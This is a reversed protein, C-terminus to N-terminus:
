SSANHVAQTSHARNRRQTVGGGWDQGVGAVAVVGVFVVVGELRQPMGVCYVSGNESRDGVVSSCTSVTLKRSCNFELVM